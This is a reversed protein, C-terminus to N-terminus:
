VGLSRIFEHKAPSASGLVQADHLRCIQLAALGVGGAIGHILVQQGARVGGMAVLMQYATLYNVALAAGVPFSVDAPLPYVQAAPACITDSYGGFNTVAVVRQGILESSVGEGVADVSGAVEYGPVAPLKPADPYLGMRMMLDAFNVGSAAVRVRVTGPGPRPDSLERLSLVEPPGKKTIWIQRM